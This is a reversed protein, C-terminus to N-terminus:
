EIADYILFLALYVYIRYKSPLKLYGKRQKSIEPPEKDALLYAVSKMGESLLLEINGTLDFTTSKVIEGTEVNVVKGTVTHLDGIKSISGGVMRDVGMLRGVEVICEDSTCGTQQFGQENLIEEMMGREIVRYTGENILESRLRDTLASAEPKTIGIGDFEIVAVPMQSFTFTIFSFLYIVPYKM